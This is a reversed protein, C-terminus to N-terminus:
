EYLVSIGYNQRNALAQRLTRYGNKVNGFKDYVIYHVNFDSLIGIPFSLKSTTTHISYLKHIIKRYLRSQIWLKHLM